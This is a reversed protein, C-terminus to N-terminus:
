AKAVPGREHRSRWRTPRRASAACRGARLRVAEVPAHQAGGGSGPGARHLGPRPAVALIEAAHLPRGAEAIARRAAEVVARGYRRAGAVDEAFPIAPPIAAAAGRDESRFQSGSESYAGGPLASGRSARPEPSARPAGGPGVPTADRPPAPRGAGAVLPDPALDAEQGAPGPSGPPEMGVAGLRRGLELYLVLDAIERDLAERRRRLAALRAAIEPESLGM